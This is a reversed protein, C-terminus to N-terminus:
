YFGPEAVSPSFGLFVELLNTFAFPTYGTSPTKRRLSKATTISVDESFGSSVVKLSSPDGRYCSCINKAGLAPISSWRKEFDVLSNSFVLSRLFSIFRKYPTQLQDLVYGLSVLPHLIFFFFNELPCFRIKHKFIGLKKWSIVKKQIQGGGQSYWEHLKHTFTTFSQVDSFEYTPYLYIYRDCDASNFLKGKWTYWQAFSSLITM